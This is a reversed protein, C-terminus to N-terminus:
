NTLSADSDLLSVMTNYVRDGVGSHIIPSYMFIINYHVNVTTHRLDPFFHNSEFHLVLTCFGRRRASSSRQACACDKLWACM